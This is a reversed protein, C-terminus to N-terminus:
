NPQRTDCAGRSIWQVSGREDIELESIPAGALYPNAKFEM